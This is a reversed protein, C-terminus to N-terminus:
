KKKKKMDHHYAVFIGAMLLAYAGVAMGFIPYVFMLSVFMYISLLVVVVLAGNKLGTYDISAGAGAVLGFPHGQGPHMKHRPATRYFEDWQRASRPYAHHRTHAMDTGQDPAAVKLWRGEKNQQYIGPKALHVLDDPWGIEEDFVRDGEERGLM